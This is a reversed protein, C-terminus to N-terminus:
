STSHYDLTLIKVPVFYGLHDDHFNLDHEESANPINHTRGLAFELDGRAHCGSVDKLAIAPVVRTEIAVSGASHDGHVQVKGRRFSEDVVSIFNGKNRRHASALELQYANMGLAALNFSVLADRSSITM